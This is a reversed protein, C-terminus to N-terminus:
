AKENWLVDAPRTAEAVEARDLLGVSTPVGGAVAWLVCAGAWLMRELAHRRTVGERNGDDDHRETM